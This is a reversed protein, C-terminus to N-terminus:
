NGVAVAAAARGRKERGPKQRKVAGSRAGGRGWAAGGEEEEAEFRPRPVGAPDPGSGGIANPPSARASASRTTDPLRDIM